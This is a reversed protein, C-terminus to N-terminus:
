FIGQQGHGGPKFRYKGKRYYFKVYYDGMKYGNAMCNKESIKM